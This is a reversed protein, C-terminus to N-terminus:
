IRSMVFAYLAGMIVVSVVVSLIIAMLFENVDINLKDDWKKIKIVRPMKDNVSAVFNGAITLILYAAIYFGYVITNSWFPFDKGGDIWLSSIIGVVAAIVYFEIGYWTGKLIQGFSIQATPSKTDRLLTVFLGVLLDIGLVIMEVSTVMDAENLSLFYVIHTTIVGAVVQVAINTTYLAGAWIKKIIERKRAEREKQEKDKKNKGAAKSAM